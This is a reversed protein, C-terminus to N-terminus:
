LWREKPLWGSIRTSSKTSGKQSESVRTKRLRHHNCLLPLLTLCRLPPKQCCHQLERTNTLPFPLSFTSESTDAEIECAVRGVNPGSEICSAHEPCLAGNSVHKKCTRVEPSFHLHYNHRGVILVGVLSVEGLRCRGLVHHGFSREYGSSLSHGVKNLAPHSPLRDM